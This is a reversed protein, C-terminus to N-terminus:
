ILWSCVFVMTPCSGIREEESSSFVFVAEVVVLGGIEMGVETRLLLLIGGKPVSLGENARGLVSCIAASDSEIM